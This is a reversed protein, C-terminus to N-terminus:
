YDFIERLRWGHEGKVVLISAPQNKQQGPAPTLAVVALDGSREALSPLYGSYDAIDRGSLGQQRERADYSDSALMASGTQDVDVLCVLSATALCAARRELLALVAAVPDDGAIAAQNTSGAANAPVGAPTTPRDTSEPTDNVRAAGDTGSTHPPGTEGARGSVPFLTLALLLISAGAIAAVLLPRQHGHLRKRLAHGAYNLPHSDVLSEVVSEIVRGRRARPQLARVLITSRGFLSGLVGGGTAFHLRPPTDDFREDFGDVLDDDIQDPFNPQPNVENAVKGNIQDARVKDRFNNDDSARSGAPDTQLASRRLQVGNVRAAEPKVAATNETVTQVDRRDDPQFGHLPEADAWDFLDYELRGLVSGPHAAAAAQDPRVPALAPSIAAQFRRMLEAGSERHPDTKAVSEFLAMMVIALREYDARLRRMADRPADTLNSVAGFGTLVARGNADLLITSQTVGGHAFGATHMASLAVTIPALLTVVEGPSLSPHEILYKALSGGALRELILCIRGDSVQAVDLLRVLGPAATSTMVAIDLEVSTTETAAHFVKLAVVSGAGSHGLYVVARDGAGLLRIVRHGAIVGETHVSAVTSADADADDSDQLSARQVSEYQTEDVSTPSREARRRM